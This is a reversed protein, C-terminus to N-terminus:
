YLKYILFVSKRQEIQMKSARGRISCVGYGRHATYNITFLNLVYSRNLYLFKVVLYLGSRFPSILNLLRRIVNTIHPDIDKDISSLQM